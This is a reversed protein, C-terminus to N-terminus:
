SKKTRKRRPQTTRLSTLGIAEIAVEIAQERLAGAEALADFFKQVQSAITKRVDEEPWPIQLQLLQNPKIRQRGYRGATRPAALCEPRGCAGRRAKRWEAPRSEFLRSPSRRIAMAACRPPALVLKQLSPLVCPWFFHQPLMLKPAIDAEGEVHRGALRHADGRLGDDIEDAEAAFVQALAEVLRAGLGILALDEDGGAVLQDGLEVVGHHGNDLIREFVMVVQLFAHAAALAVLEGGGLANPFPGVAPRQRFHRRAAAGLIEAGRERGVADGDLAHWDREVNELIHDNVAVGASGSCECRRGFGGPACTLNRASIFKSAAILVQGSM